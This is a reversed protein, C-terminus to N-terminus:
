GAPQVQPNDNMWKSIVPDNLLHSFKADQKVMDLDKWIKATLESTSQVGGEIMRIACEARNFEYLKYGSIKAKDRLKIADTLAVVAGALDPVTQEKLAYGLQGHDRHYSADAAILAKFIPVTAGVQRKARDFEEKAIAGGAKASADMAQFKSTANQRVERASRFIIARTTNSANAIATDLTTQSIPKQNPDAELQQQSLNIADSDDKLRKKVQDIGTQDAERLAKIMNLRTWLYALLFGAVIFYVIILLAFIGAQETAGLGPKAYDAARKLFSAIEKAQVLGVGIIIKTLWDSVQELNTNAQYWTADGNGGTGETSENLAKGAGQMTRPIAFLFGLLTGSLLSAGAALLGTTIVTLCTPSCVGNLIVILFGLGIVILLTPFAGKSTLETIPKRANTSTGM